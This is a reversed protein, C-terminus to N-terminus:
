VDSYGGMREYTSEAYDDYFKVNKLWSDRRALPAAYHNMVLFPEGHRPWVM